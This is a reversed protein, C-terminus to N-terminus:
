GNRVRNSVVIVAGAPVVTGLSVTESNLTYVKKNRSLLGPLLKVAKLYYEVTKGEVFSVEVADSGFGSVRVVSATGLPAGDEPTPDDTRDDFISM